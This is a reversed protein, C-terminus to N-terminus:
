QPPEGTGVFQATGRLMQAWGSGLSTVDAIQMTLIVEGSEGTPLILTATDLALPGAQETITGRWHTLGDIWRAGVEDVCIRDRETRYSCRIPTDRGDQRLVAPGDYSEILAAGDLRLLM